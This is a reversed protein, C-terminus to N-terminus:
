SSNQPRQRTHTLLRTSTYFFVPGIAPRVEGGRGGAASGSRVRRLGRRPHVDEEAHAEKRKESM